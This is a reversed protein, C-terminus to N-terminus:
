TATSASAPTAAVFRRVLTDVGTIANGVVVAFAGSEFARRVDDPHRIRGECLVPTTVAAVLRELLQLDPGDTPNAGHTYGALTTAIFDAGAETAALGEDLTAVDAMVLAGLDGRIQRILRDVTAGDPRPRLTADIAVVDAGAEHVLRADALTPTIYVGYSDDRLRKRIGIVPLSVSARVAAINQPQDIRVGAAGNLEATRSLASLFDPRDLPSGAPAQCSVILGGRWRATIETRTM